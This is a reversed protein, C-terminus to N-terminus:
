HTLILKQAGLKLLADELSGTRAPATFILQAKLDALVALVAGARNEDFDTMFDDLLFIAPGKKALLERIQAIKILLIILKQQGRSAFNKSKKHEFSISFDDLHSGFLSRGFRQEDQYLTPNSAIFSEFSETLTVMKPKYEFSITLQDKFYAKLISATEKELRTIAEARASQIIRSSSWLQETLVDYLERNRMGGQMLLTNRNDAIARVARLQTAFDPDYLLMAQDIFARRVDPGEKILGLDDETLTVIRYHDMLERFSCVVKQNIKVLRKAGSFGVQVEQHAEPQDYSFVAKIFFTNQGTRLYCLYHLAELLSTKGAGNLGEILVISSEFLLTKESFCRFNKLHLQKLQM